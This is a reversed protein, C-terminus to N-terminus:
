ARWWIGCTPSTSGPKHTACAKPPCPTAGVVKAPTTRDIPAPVVPPATLTANIVPLDGAPATDHSHAQAFGSLGLALGAALSLLRPTFRKM